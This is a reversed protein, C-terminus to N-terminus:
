ESRPQTASPSKAESHVAAAPQTDVRKTVMDKACYRVVLKRMAVSKVLKAVDCASAHSEDHLHPDAGAKLLMRAIMLHHELVAERLPEGDGAEFSDGSGPQTDAVVANPFQKKAAQDFKAAAQREWPMTVAGNADAGKELFLKVVRPRNVNVAATLLARDHPGTLETLVKPDERALEAKIQAYPAGKSLMGFLKTKPLKPGAVLRQTVTLRLNFLWLLMGPILAMMLLVLGVKKVTGRVSV